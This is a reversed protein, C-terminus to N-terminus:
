WQITRTKNKVHFLSVIFFNRVCISQRSHSCSFIYLNMYKKLWKIWAAKSFLFQLLFALSCINADVAFNIPLLCKGFGATSFGNHEHISRRVACTSKFNLGFECMLLEQNWFTGLARPIIYCEGWQCTLWLSDIALSFIRINIKLKRQVRTEHVM